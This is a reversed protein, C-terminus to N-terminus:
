REWDETTPMDTEHTTLYTRITGAVRSALEPNLRARLAQDLFTDIAVYPDAIPAAVCAERAM